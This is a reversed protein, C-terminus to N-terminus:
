RVYRYETEVPTASHEMAARFPLVYFRAIVAIMIVGGIMLFAAYRLTGRTLEGGIEAPPTEHISTRYRREQTSVTGGRSVGIIAIISCTLGIVVPDLLVPLDIVGYLNLLKATFNAVFGVVIGWFAGGATIRSSWISMFAVPGWSSAFLTAAFYAIMMIAPPQFYALVLIVAGVVLMAYRSISLRRPESMDSLDALDNVVSFAILSLFTSASSLAAAVIGALLVAGAFTPLVNLSAWILAREAPEISVNLLNISAAATILACYFVLVIGTASCAARIATHENKAMLYRSSQWPSVAVTIAWAAGIVLGWSLADGPTEWRGNPGSVGHWSFIGPKTEFHVLAVIAETWGGAADVIYFLALFAVFTFLIFMVTDTLVVGKSGSYATFWTYSLWVILLTLGYPIDMAESIALSAGQTVALLYAALGVIVTVGAAAQVRRSAFRRGFFEAVTIARSRRLYRGFLFVGAVYGIANVTILILLIGGHGEYTFGTEGIFAATSLYSAVLTGVILFTPANRGAVYYDEIGKIRRGAYNGILVYVFVSVIIGIAYPNM